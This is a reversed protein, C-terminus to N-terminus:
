RGPPQGHLRAFARNFAFESTCGMRHVITDRLARAVVNLHWRTLYTLPPEGVHRAFRRVLTARPVNVTVALTDLPGTTVPDSTCSPWFRRPSRTVYAADRCHHIGDAGPAIAPRTSKM